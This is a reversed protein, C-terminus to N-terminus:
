LRKRQFIVIAALLSAILLGCTVGVTVMLAGVSKDGSLIALNDSALTIPNYKTTGPFINLIFMIVIGFATIILGGLSGVAIASSLLILALIFCGFLWLCFLSFLLHQVGTDEFLYLTYGYNVAASLCFSITWLVVATLFKSLIITHRPLGKALINILTGRLLENSLTSGFVLLLALLGMQTCNKFFQGYADLVTPDPITIKVGQLEMGSMIEPMLKALLPSTMGFLFFVALLILCKSTRLQELFEKKSFALFGRM